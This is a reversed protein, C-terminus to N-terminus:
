DLRKIYRTFVWGQIIADGEKGRYEILSWNNKKHIIRVLYGFYLKGAYRSRTSNRSWVTLSQASVFRYHRYFETGIEVQHVEKKLHKTLLAYDIQTPSSFYITSFVSIFFPLLIYVIFKTIIPHHKAIDNLINNITIEFSIKDATPITELYSEIIRQVESQEFISNQGTITGDSNIVYDVSRLNDAMESLRTIVSSAFHTQMRQAEAVVSLMGSSHLREQVIRQAEAMSSYMSSSLLQEKIRQAETVVSLMSYSHLQEQVIRQAEAMSNYMSSSLLQEKIRQSEAMISCMGSSLLQEQWSNKQESLKRIYDTRLKYYSDDNM